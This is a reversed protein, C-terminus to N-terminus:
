EIQLEKVLYAEFAPIAMKGLRYSFEVHKSFDKGTLEVNVFTNQEDDNTEGENVSKADGAVITTHKVISVVAGTRLVQVDKLLPHKEEMTSYIKDQLEKPIVQGTNATTHTYARTEEDTLEEGLLKKLFARKYIKEDEVTRNQNQEVSFDKVVTGVSHNQSINELLKKRAEIDELIKNREEILSNTEENLAKVDAKENELEKAIEKLRLEIEKLRKM